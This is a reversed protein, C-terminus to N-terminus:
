WLGEGGVECWDGAEVSHHVTENSRACVCVILIFDCWVELVGMIYM